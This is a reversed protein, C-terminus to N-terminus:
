EQSKANTTSLIKIRAAGPPPTFNFSSAPLTPNFNWNSFSATYRPIGDEKLNQISYQTPRYLGEAEIWIQIIFQENQLRVHYNSIGNITVIGILDIVEFDELLDDVLSPYFVDAGPFDVDFQASVSDIMPIIRNPADIRIYNNEDFSYYTLSDGDFWYGKHHGDEHSYILLHSPGSLYVEHHNHITTLGYPYVVKDATVDLQYSCSELEGLSASMLDLVHIARSDITTDQAFNFLPFLLAALLLKLRPRRM